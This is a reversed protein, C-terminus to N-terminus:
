AWTPVVTSNLVGPASFTLAGDNGRTVVYDTFITENDLVKSNQTITVTRTVSSSPVTCLVAHALNSGTDMPGDLTITFDALLLLREMASSSIGTVDTTGRPTGFSMNTIDTSITRATGGSDDVALAMGLGSVKAM